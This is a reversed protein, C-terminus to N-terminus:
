IEVINMFLNISRLPSTKSPLCDMSSMMALILSHPEQRASRAAEDYANTICKKYQFGMVSQHHQYSILWPPWGVM